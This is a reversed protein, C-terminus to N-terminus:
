TTKINHKKDACGQLIKCIVGVLHVIISLINIVRRQLNRAVMHGDNLSVAIDIRCHYKDSTQQNPNVGVLLFSVV